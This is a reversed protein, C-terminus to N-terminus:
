FRRSEQSLPRHHYTVLLGQSRKLPTLLFPVAESQTRQRRGQELCGQVMSMERRKATSSKTLTKCNPCQKVPQYREEVWELSGSDLFVIIFM